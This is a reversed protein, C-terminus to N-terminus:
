KTSLKALSLSRCTISAQRSGSGALLPPQDQARSGCGHRMRMGVVMVVMVVMVMPMMVMTVMM